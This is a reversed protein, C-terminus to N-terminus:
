DWLRFPYKGTEVMSAIAEVIVPKDEKYTIGYWESDTKLVKVRLFEEEILTNVILPIYYEAKIENGHIRLFRRFYEDAYRFIEDSFAWMNMSVITDDTLDTRTDSVLAFNQGRKIGHVEEIDVLESDSNAKCIGRSVSGNDSLTNKLHFGCLAAKLEGHKVTDLYESTKLFADGGYFDDANIIIFPGATVSAAALMAHGTGWPKMRGEPVTFEEPIDNLNQYVYEIQVRNKFKLSIKNKFLDAFEERIIFVIRSFGARVADFVSYDIISEGSPGVQDLQKLGGYRTGMGAAMIVVTKEM